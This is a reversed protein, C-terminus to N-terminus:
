NLSDSLRSVPPPELSEAEADMVEKADQLIEILKGVDERDLTIFGGSQFDERDGVYIYVQLNKNLYCELESGNEGEFVTRTAMISYCVDPLLFKLFTFCSEYSM